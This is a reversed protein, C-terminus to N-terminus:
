LVLQKKVQSCDLGAGWFQVYVCIPFWHLETSYVSFTEVRTYIPQLSLQATIADKVPSYRTIFISNFSLSGWVNMILMKAHKQLVNIPLVRVEKAHSLTNGPPQVCTKFASPQLVVRCVPTHPCPPENLATCAIPSVQPCTGAIYCMAQHWPLALDRGSHGWTGSPAVGLLHDVKFRNSSYGSLLVSFFAEQLKRIQKGM